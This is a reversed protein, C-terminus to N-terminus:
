EISDPQNFNEEFFRFYDEFTFYKRMLEYNIVSIVVPRMVKNIEDPLIEREYLMKRYWEVDDFDSFGSITMVEIDNYESFDIDFNKVLFNSFNYNAIVFQLVAKDITGKPYVFLLQYPTHREASFAITTSDIQLSDAADSLKRSWMSSSFQTGDSLDRGEYIGKAIASALENLEGSPYTKLMEELVRKFEEKEGEKLLSLAYVFMYKPMLEAKPYRTRIFHYNDRVQGSAGDLYANYTAEYVSDQVYKAMFFEQEFNPRALMIANENDPFEAILRLRYYEAREKDGLRYYIQFLNYYVDVLYENNPFRDLLEELSHIAAPFDSLDNKLIVGVHFLGERILADSAAFEEDTSPLQALYYAPQEPDKALSDLLAREDDAQSMEDAVNNEVLSDDQKQENETEGGVAMGASPKNKLRWNDELKRNGWKNQFANKGEAMLAANYFYWSKDTKVTPQVPTPKNASTNVPLNARKDNVAESIEEAEKAKRVRKVESIIQQILEMREKEPMRAVKQLSDQEEVNRSYVSMADLAPCLRELRKYDEHEKGLLGFAESYCPQAHMYRHQAYYLDGLRLLCVAKDLGNQKSRSVGTKYNEIAKVTDNMSLYVNGIAYYVQDLYNKNKANKALRNLKSLIEKNNKGVFVESQKIRAALEMDYPPSKKIVSRYLDYANQKQGNMQNLQALLFTRRTKENKPTKDLSQKVHAMAERYNKQKMLYDAYAAEYDSLLRGELKEKEVSKLMNEAEYFWKLECYCRMQWIRAENLTKDLHAFHRIIYSFVSSAGMYNGQQYLSKGWLMWANHLFPNYEEQNLFRVYKPDKMKDRKKKPKAKISHTKIAIKSKEIARDFESKGSISTGLDSTLFLSLPRTYNNRHSTKMMSMGKEYAQTGNFYVNYRTTFAHYSRTKWTNKKTSCGSWLLMM